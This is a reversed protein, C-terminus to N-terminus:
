ITPVLIQILLLFLGAKRIKGCWREDLLINKVANYRQVYVPPFFQIGIGSRFEAESPITYNDSHIFNSVTNQEDNIGQAKNFDPKPITRLIFRSMMYFVHFLVIM